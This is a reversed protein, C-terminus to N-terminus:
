RSAYLASSNASRNNVVLATGVKTGDINVTGVTTNKQAAEMKELQKTLRDVAQANKPDKSTFPDITEGMTLRDRASYYQRQSELYKKQISEPVNVFKVDGDLQPIIQGGRERAEQVAAISQDRAQRKMRERSESGGVLVAFNEIADVLMEIFGGDVLAAFQDKVKDMARAFRESADQAELNALAQKGIQQAIEQRAVGQSELAKLVMLESEREEETRSVRNKSALANLANLTKQKETIEILKESSLGLAAATRELTVANMKSISDYTIGQANIEKGLGVYDRTLALFRARELNLNRGLLVEAQLENTISTEFDLLSNAITKTDEFTMGFERLKIVGKAIELNNDRLANRIEGTVKATQELAERTSINTKLSAAEIKVMGALIETNEQLSGGQRITNKLLGAYAEESLKLYSKLMAAEAVFLNFESTVDKTLTYQTDLLKNVDTLAQIVEKQLLYQKRGEETVIHYSNALDYAIDRQKRAAETSLDFNRRLEAVQKSADLMANIFFKVIKIVAEIAMVYINATFGQFAGKFGAGLLQSASAAGNTQQALNQMAQTAGQANVLGGLVPIKSLATFATGLGKVTALAKALNKSYATLNENAHELGDVQDQINDAADAYAQAITKAEQVVDKQLNIQVQLNDIQTQTLTGAALGLSLQNRLNDLVAKQRQFELGTTSAQGELVSAQAELTTKQARLTKLLEDAQRKTLDYNGAQKLGKEIKEYAKGVEKAKTLLSDDFAQGADETAKKVAKLADTLARAAATGKNISDFDIDVPNRAM